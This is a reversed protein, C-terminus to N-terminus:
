EAGQNGVFVFFDILGSKIQLVIKELVRLQIEGGSRLGVTCASIGKEGRVDNNAIQGEHRTLVIEIIKM